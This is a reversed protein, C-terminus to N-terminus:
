DEDDPLDLHDVLAGYAKHWASRSEATQVLGREAEVFAGIRQRLDHRDALLAFLLRAIAKASCKEIALALADSPTNPNVKRAWEWSDSDTDQRDILNKYDYWGM